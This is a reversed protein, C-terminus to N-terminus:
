RLVNLAGDVEVPPFLHHAPEIKLATAEEQSGILAVAVVASYFSIRM